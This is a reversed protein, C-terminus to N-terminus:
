HIKVNSWHGHPLVRLDCQDIRLSRGVHEDGECHAFNNGEVHQGGSQM